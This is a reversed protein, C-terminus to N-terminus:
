RPICNLPPPPPPRSPPLLCHSRAVITLLSGSPLFYRSPSVIKRYYEAGERAADDDDNRTDNSPIKEEPMRCHRRSRRFLTVIESRRCGVKRRRCLHASLNQFGDKKGREKREKEGATARKKRKRKKRPFTQRNERFVTAIAMHNTGYSFNRM